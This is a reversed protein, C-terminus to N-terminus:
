GRLVPELTTSPTADGECATYWDLFLTRGDPVFGFSSFGCPARGTYTKWTGGRLLYWPADGGGVTRDRMQFLVPRTEDATVVFSWRMALMSGEGPLDGGGFFAEDVDAPEPIVVDPADAPSVMSLAVVDFGNEHRVEAWCRVTLPPMPAGDPPAFEGTVTGSLWVPSASSAPTVRGVALRTRRRSWDSPTTSSSRPRM